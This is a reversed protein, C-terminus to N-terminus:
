PNSFSSVKEAEIRGRESTRINNLETESSSRHYFMEDFSLNGSAISSSTQSM